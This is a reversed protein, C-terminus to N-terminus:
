CRAPAPPLEAWELVEAGGPKRAIIAGTHTPIEAGSAM